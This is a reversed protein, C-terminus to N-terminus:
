HSSPQISDVIKIGNTMGTTLTVFEHGLSNLIGASKSLVRLASVEAFTCGGIFVVLTKKSKKNESNLKQRDPIITKEFYDCGLLKMLDENNKFTPIKNSNQASSETANQLFSTTAIQIIRISLPCYGAYAYSPLTPELLSEYANLLRFQKQIKGFESKKGTNIILLGVKQLNSM